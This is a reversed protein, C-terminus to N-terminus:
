CSSRHSSVVFSLIADVEGDLISLPDKAIAERMQNLTMPMFCVMYSSMSFMMMSSVMLLTLFLEM